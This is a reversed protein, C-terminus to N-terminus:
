ACFGYSNELKNHHNLVLKFTMTLLLTMRSASASLRSAITLVSKAHTGYVEV